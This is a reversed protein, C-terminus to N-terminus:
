KLSSLGGTRMNLSLIQSTILDSTGSLKLVSSKIQNRLQTFDSPTTKKFNSLYDLLQASNQAIFVFKITSIDSDSSFKIAEPNNQYFPGVIVPSGFSLPEMVSHVKDKFSGGIFAVDSYEYLYFLYGFKDVILVDDQLTFNKGLLPTLFSYSLNLKKLQDLILTIFSKELDHPALIIQYDKAIDELIDKFVHFDQPWLSGLVLLPRLSKIKPFDLPHTTKKLQVQDYRTDGSVQATLKPFHHKLNCLDSDDVVHIQSLNKLALYTVQKSLFKVRSSNKPFTASFLLAPINHEKLQISLEPWVDTRAFHFSLFHFQNLFFNVNQYTDIPCPGVADIWQNKEASQLYSTSSLTVVINIPKQIKEYHIKIKQIIPLAYELEGSAAHFGICPNNKDFTKKLFFIKKQRFQLTQKLKNNPLILKIIPILLSICFAIIRYLILVM